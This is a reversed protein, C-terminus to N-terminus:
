KNANTATQPSETKAVEPNPNRKATAAEIMEREASTQRDYHELAVKPSNGCWRAVVAIPFRSMWESECSARLNQFLKPWPVIGANKIIRRAHTGPNTEAALGPLLHTQGEEAGNFAAELWPMLEHDIPVIRFGTKTESPVHLTKSDWRIDDLTLAAAEHPIRLAGFRALAFLLRWRIAPCHEIVQRVTAREIFRERSKDHKGGGRVDAFPNRDIVDRRVAIRFFTKVRRILRGAHSPAFKGRVFAAFGDADKPRISRIDLDKGFHDTLHKAASKDNKRSDRRQLPERLRRAEDLFMGLTTMTRSVVLGVAAIREYITHDLGDLWTLTSSAPSHNLKRVAILHGVHRAVEKAAELPVVGLRITRKKNAHSFQVWRHGNPRNIVTAM